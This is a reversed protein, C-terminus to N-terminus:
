KKNLGIFKKVENNIEIENILYNKPKITLPFYYVHPKIEPVPYLRTFYPQWDHVEIDVNQNGNWDVKNLIKINKKMFTNLDM